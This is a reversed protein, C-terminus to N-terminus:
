FPEPSSARRLGIGRSLRIVKSSDVWVYLTSPLTTGRLTVPKKCSYALEKSGVNASCVMFAPLCHGSFRAANSSCPRPTSSVSKRARHSKFPWTALARPCRNCQCASCSHLPLSTKQLVAAGSDVCSNCVVCRRLHVRICACRFAQPLAAYDRTGAPWAFRRFGGPSPNRVMGHPPRGSLGPWM